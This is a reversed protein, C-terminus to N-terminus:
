SSAFGFFVWVTSGDKHVQEDRPAKVAVCPGWKDEAVKSMRKALARLDGDVKIADEDVQEVVEVSGGGRYTRETWFGYLAADILDEFVDVNLDDPIDFVEYDGKEAITGSYGGHGEWYLADEVAAHFAQDVTMGAQRTIFESAGM